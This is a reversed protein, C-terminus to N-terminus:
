ICRRMRDNETQNTANKVDGAPMMTSAASSEVSKKESGNPMSAATIMRAACSRVNAQITGSSAVAPETTPAQSVNQIPMFIPSLSSSRYTAGLRSCRMRAFIWVRPATASATSSRMGGGNGKM